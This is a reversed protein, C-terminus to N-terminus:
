RLRWENKLRGQEDYPDNYPLGLRNAVEQHQDRWAPYSECPVFPCTSPQLHRVVLHRAVNLDYDAKTSVRWDFPVFSGDALRRGKERYEAVIEEETRLELPFVDLPRGSLNWGIWDINPMRGVALSDAFEQSTLHTKQGDPMEPEAFAGPGDETCAATLTLTAAMLALAISNTWTKM